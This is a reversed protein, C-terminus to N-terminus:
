GAKARVWRPLSPCLAAQDKGILELVWQFFQPQVQMRAQQLANIVARRVRDRGMRDMVVPHSFLDCTSGLRIGPFKEDCIRNAKREDIVPIAGTKVAYALTAAEGDDLTEAARGVVLSEFIVNADDCLPVIKIGGASVIEQLLDAHPRGRRRGLELEAPVEDVALLRVPLASVIDAAFESAILNIATSTDIVVPLSPDTLCSLSGM